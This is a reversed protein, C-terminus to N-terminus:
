TSPPSSSADFCFSDGSLWANVIVREGPAVTEPALFGGVLLRTVVSRM